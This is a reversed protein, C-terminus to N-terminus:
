YPQNTKRQIQVDHSLDVNSKDVVSVVEIGARQIWEAQLQNFDDVGITVYGNELVKKRIESIKNM